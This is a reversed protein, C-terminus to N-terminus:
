GVRGQLGGHLYQFSLASHLLGALTLSFIGVVIDWVSFMKPALPIQFSHFSLESQLIYLRSPRLRLQNVGLQKSNFSIPNNLKYGQYRRLDFISDLICYLRFIDM